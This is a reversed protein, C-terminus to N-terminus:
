YDSKEAPVEDVYYSIDPTNLTGVIYKAEDKSEFYGLRVKYLNDEFVIFWNKRTKDSLDAAIQEAIAKNSM